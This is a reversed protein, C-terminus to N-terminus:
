TLIQLDRFAQSYVDMTKRAEDQTLHFDPDHVINNRTQHALHVQEINPLTASTLKQLREELNQGLYGMRRLSSDLMDDAEIVALKWESETGSELRALIKGWNRTIRKAGFPRRTIFETLDQFFLWRLYHSRLLLFIIGLLLFASIALFAIKLPWLKAQIEPSTLYYIITNLDINM